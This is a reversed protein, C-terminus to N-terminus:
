GGVIPSFVVLRDDPWLPTEARTSRPVFRTNVATAVTEDDVEREKLIDAVTIGLRWAHASGNVIVNAPKTRPPAFVDDGERM